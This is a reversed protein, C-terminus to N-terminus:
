ALLPNMITSAFNDIISNLLSSFAMFMFFILIPIWTSCIKIWKWGMMRLIYPPDALCGLIFVKLTEGLYNTSHVRFGFFYYMFIQNLVKILLAMVAPKMSWVIIWWTQSGKIVLESGSTLGRHIQTSNRVLNTSLFHSQQEVQFVLYPTPFEVKNSKSTSSMCGFLLGGLNRLCCFLKYSSSFFM